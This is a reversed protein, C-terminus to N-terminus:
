SCRLFIGAEVGQHVFHPGKTSINTAAIRILASGKRWTRWSRSIQSDGEELSYLCFHWSSVKWQMDGKPRYMVTPIVYRPNVRRIIAARHFALTILLHLAILSWHFSRRPLFYLTPSLPLLLENITPLFSYSDHWIIKKAPNTKPCPLLNRSSPNKTRNGM